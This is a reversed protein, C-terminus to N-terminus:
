VPNSEGEGVRCIGKGTVLTGRKAVEGVALAPALREFGMCRGRVEDTGEVRRKAHVAERLASGSLGAQERPHITSLHHTTVETGKGVRLRVLREVFLINEPLDLIQLSSRISRRGEGIGKGWLEEIGRPAPGGDGGVAAVGGGDGEAVDFCEPLLVGERRIQRSGGPALM